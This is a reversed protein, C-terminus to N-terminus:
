LTSYYVAATYNEYRSSTVKTDNNHTPRTITVHCPFLSYQLSWLPYFLDIGKNQFDWKKLPHYVSLKPTSIFLVELVYRTKNKHDNYSLYSFIPFTFFVTSKIFIILFLFFYYCICISWFKVIWKKKRVIKHISM